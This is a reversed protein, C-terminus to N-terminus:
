WFAQNTCSFHLSVARVNVYTASSGFPYTQKSVDVNTSMSRFYNLSQLICTNHFRDTQASRMAGIASFSGISLDHKPMVITLLATM